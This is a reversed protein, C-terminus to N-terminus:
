RTYAMGGAAGGLTYAPRIVVPYGINRSRARVRRAHATESRAVELGIDRMAEAFLRRDVPRISKIDCGIVEVGYKDLVGQEALAVACNLGTQGGMNPLLADPREKAIVKAVSAATIPEVYTRDATEPDTM